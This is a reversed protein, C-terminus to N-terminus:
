AGHNGGNMKQLREIMWAPLAGVQEAESIFQAAEQQVKARQELLNLVHRGQAEHTQILSELLDLLPAMYAGAMQKTM